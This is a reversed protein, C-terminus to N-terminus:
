AFAPTEGESTLIYLCLSSGARQSAIRNLKLRQAIYYTLIPRAAVATDYTRDLGVDAMSLSRGAHGPEYFCGESQAVAANWGTEVEVCWIRINRPVLQQKLNRALKHVPRTIVM